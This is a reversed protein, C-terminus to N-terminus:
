AVGHFDSKRGQSSGEEVTPNKKERFFLLSNNWGVERGGVFSM